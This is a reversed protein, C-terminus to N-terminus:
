YSKGRFGDPGPSKDIPLKKLISEIGDNTIPINMNEIEEQNLRQLNHVELSKEMENLNDM